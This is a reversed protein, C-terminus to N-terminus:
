LIMEKMLDNNRQDNWVYGFPCARYPNTQRYLGLSTNPIDKTRVDKPVGGTRVSAKRPKRLGELCIGSLLLIM